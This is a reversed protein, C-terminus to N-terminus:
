AGTLLFFHQQIVRHDIRITTQKSQMEFSQDDHNNSCKDAFLLRLIAEIM